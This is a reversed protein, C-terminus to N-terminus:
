VPFTTLSELKERRYLQGTSRASRPGYGVQRVVGGLLHITAPDDRDVTEAAPSSSRRISLFPLTAYVGMDGDESIDVWEYGVVQVNKGRREADRRGSV